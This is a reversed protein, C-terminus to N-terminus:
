EVFSIVKPDRIRFDSIMHTIHPGYIVFMAFILILGTYILAGIAVWSSVRLSYFVGCMAGFLEVSLVTIAGISFIGVVLSFCYIVMRALWKFLSPCFMNDHIIWGRLHAINIITSVIPGGYMWVLFWVAHSVIGVHFRTLTGLLLTTFLQVGLSWLMDARQALRPKEKLAREIDLGPYNDEMWTLFEKFDDRSQAQHMALHWKQRIIRLSRYPNQRLFVAGSKLEEQYMSTSQNLHPPLPESKRGFQFRWAVDHCASNWIELRWIRLFGLELAITVAVNPSQTEEPLTSNRLRSVRGPLKSLEVSYPTHKTWMLKEDFKPEIGNTQTSSEGDVKTSAEAKVNVSTEEYVQISKENTETSIAAEGSETNPYGQLNTLEAIL